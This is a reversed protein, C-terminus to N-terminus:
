VLWGVRNHVDRLLLVYYFGLCEVLRLPEASEMFDELSISNFHNPDEPRLVIPGFTALLLPSAFMNDSAKSLSELVAEKLLGVTAVRMQVPLDEDTLLEQLLRFRIPSPALGLVLSITRFTFHRIDPDSHNGALQPLLHMLPIVLDTGLESRVSAAHLSALTSLLVSLTEDLSVNLQISM